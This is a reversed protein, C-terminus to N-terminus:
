GPLVPEARRTASSPQGRELWRWHRAALKGLEWLAMLALAPVLAWAFEKMHLWTTGLLRHFVDMQTVLVALVFEGLMALNMQKSDFTATTVATATESRCEVAAVILCFAFSTFAISNGIAESDFHSKGLQI